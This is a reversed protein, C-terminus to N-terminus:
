QVDGNSAWWAKFANWRNISRLQRTGEELYQWCVQLDKGEERAAELVSERYREQIENLRVKFQKSLRGPASGSTDEDDQDTNCEREDGSMGGANDSCAEAEEVEEDEEFEATFHLRGGKTLSVDEEEEDEEQLITGAESSY